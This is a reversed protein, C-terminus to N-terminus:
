NSVISQVPTSTTKFDDEYYGLNISPNEADAVTEYFMPKLNMYSTKYWFDEAKLANNYSTLTNSDALRIRWYGPNEGTEGYNSNTIDYNMTVSVQDNGTAWEAAAVEASVAGSQMVGVSTAVTAVFLTAAVSQVLKKIKM